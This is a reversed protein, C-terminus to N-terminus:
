SFYEKGRKCVSSLPLFFHYSISLEMSFRRTLITSEIEFPLSLQPQHFAIRRAILFPSVLAFSRSFNKTLLLRRPAGTSARLTHHYAFYASQLTLKPHCRPLLITGFFPFVGDKPSKKAGWLLELFSLPSRM